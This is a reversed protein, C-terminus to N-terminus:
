AEKLAQLTVRILNYGIPDYKELTKQYYFYAAFTECFYEEWDYRARQSISRISKELYTQEIQMVVEVPAENIIYHGLEHLLIGKMFDTASTMVSVAPSNGAQLIENGLPLHDLRKIPQVIIWPYPHNEAIQPKPITLGAASDRFFNGTRIYVFDLREFPHALVFTALGAESIVNEVARTQELSLESSQQKAYLSKFSRLPM